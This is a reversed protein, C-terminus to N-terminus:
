ACYREPPNVERQLSPGDIATPPLQVLEPALVSLGPPTEGLGQLDELAQAGQELRVLHPLFQGLQGLFKTSESRKIWRVGSPVNRPVCHRPM